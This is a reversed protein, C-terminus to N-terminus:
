HSMKPIPGQQVLLLWRQVAYKLEKRSGQNFIVWDAERNKRAQTWQSGERRRIDGLTWGRKLLRKRRLAPPASVCLVRDFFRNFGYEFLLPVEVVVFTAPRTKRGQAEVWQQVRRRIEPHLLRNLELRRAPQRFVIEGLKKRDITGKGDLVGKGFKRAVSRAFIKEGLLQHGLQDTQLVPVKELRLLELVLSKGSGIGGTLGIKLPRKMPFGEFIVQRHAEFPFGTM